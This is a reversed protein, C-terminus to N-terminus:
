FDQFDREMNLGPYSSPERNEWAHRKENGFYAYDPARGAFGM